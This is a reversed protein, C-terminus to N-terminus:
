GMIGMGQVIWWIMGQGKDFHWKAVLGANGQVSVMAGCHPCKSVKAGAGVGASVPKAADMLKADLEQRRYADKRERDKM